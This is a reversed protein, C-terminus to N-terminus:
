GGITKGHKYSIVGTLLNKEEVLSIRTNFLVPTERQLVIELYELQDATLKNFFIMKKTVKLSWSKFKEEFKANLLGVITM